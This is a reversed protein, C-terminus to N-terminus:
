AHPTSTNRGPVLRCDSSTWVSRIIATNFFDHSATVLALTGECGGKLIPFSNWTNGGRKSCRNQQPQGHCRQCMSPRSSMVHFCFCFSVFPFGHIIFLFYVGEILVSECYLLFRTPLMQFWRFQFRFELSYIFLLDPLCLCKVFLFFM